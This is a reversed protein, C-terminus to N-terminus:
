FNLFSHRLLTESLDSIKLVLEGTSPQLEAEVLDTKM